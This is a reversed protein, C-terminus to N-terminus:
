AAAVLTSAPVRSTVPESVLEASVTLLPPVSAPVPVTAWSAVTRPPPVSAGPAAEGAPVPMRESPPRDSAEVAVVAIVIASVPVVGPVSKSWTLM